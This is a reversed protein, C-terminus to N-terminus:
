GVKVQRVEINEAVLNVANLNNTSEIVNGNDVHVSDKLSQQINRDLSKLEGKLKRLELEKRWKSNVVEDYVPIDKSAKEAYKKHNDILFPIRELAKMFNTAALKPDKAIHGNNYTYKIGSEGEIFFRNEKFDFGHKMSAETKVLINLNYLSGVKLYEGKTNAKENIENLKAGIVKTNAGTVGNLQVPNLPLGAEDKQLRKQLVAWDKEMREAMQNHSGITEKIDELRYHASSKSRNFAQRESELATIQKELKAKELLDTNGSLIAVYESFNMGSKEDLSGEDITRKGLNNIKLQQIFLQKNHLLNFKYSDLSKEVAYIIVDVKNDACLKAIENGKRIARGERQELDSPRWPSDLHHIAVARKQANVGTGLMDTSGFLVRIRGENMAEIITKRAKETKAEQIFRIEHAPINHDSVLKRKIESYPSWEGPKYTGLDSFVFQTGKEVNHKKYYSHIQAACHSAKNDVHDSYHPSIMRMDLSMKRAYNTAILMKAKEERESLPPRGLVTADGNKAFAVLKQIFVEQQPTLPINHLIENKEPRDIGIDKATRYDTIENYFAALEPVKIFYRFREKQVIENTVSFEYDTTKKAYVAAWADFTKIQQRELEKPRLYKFLLFLETLSNSITTGSLFTAGLDKGNREQITRIAFLMNLARQSGQPNGMGAVRDHRTNFMLNKFRHSEDVFLHDIGMMKFDVVNDKKNEIDHTITKLKVELNQQRKLLGKLMARSVDGGQRKVMDLNEEVSELESQLIQQQVLPSQPIMGFQDHTLIIADWSNNKIDQFIKMRKAPTFDQKGPYLIKAYPYATRFTQAIEHINAKLGVIMPKNALKLRKMEYAACCMILTKGAGVEHDCIGGGNQKLMWIADKQSDYLNKIGLAKLDLKPFSQHSGDYKPRVYCNFTNNYLDRLKQKFEPKQENLWDTFGNRIEDIKSNALQIAESDRVKVEKDGVMIRKTINPTSNVLAHKMLAIGDYNRSQSKVAHKEYINANTFQAKVSFEDMSPSYHINVDTKFLDSAYEGYIRAPIWREGFNFDLEDFTIPQPIANQLAKLAEQSQTDNPHNQLYTEINQAKEIVNGTIFKDSVEYNQILPNYYVRGHLEDVLEESSKGDLLSLMYDTRVEGFKNLSATLAEEATEVHELKENQFSVPQTFIDAKVLEGNEGRELALVENAGSDMKLLGLNKLNNLNGYRRIFDDYYSNLLFRNTTDEKQRTAENNYLKHYADRIQIFTLAKAEQLPNQDLRKFITKGDSLEKLYGLQGNDEVFSGKAYHELIEGRFPREDPIRFNDPNPKAKRGNVKPPATFLNLQKGNRKKSKRRKTSKTQIREAQSLGFLDYLNQSPEHKNGQEKKSNSISVIKSKAEKGQFLEVNLIKSLDAELMKNLDAAMGQIGGNHVFIQAPKGYPNTDIFGETHVVRQFNNYYANNDIGSSLKESKVFDQEEDSLKNKTSDKQLIILDSGVETGAYEKFLNNPLRVASVLHTNQMLWNRIPENQPSNMVGQSTIFALLGGESLSDVGKLFFYNHINRTAQQRVKDSSKIFSIDFAAVDGFPINSSVVDFSNNFRSELEEFGQRRISDNPFIHSLLKGTLIDKEFATINPTQNQKKFASIFEGMGASPDLFSKPNAGSINLNGAITNVIEPPTYFATLISNKLSNVYQKYEQKSNTNSKLTEHLEAVLPFLEVESEPWHVIDSLDNAPNLVCKLAGFGLFQKLAEIEEENPKRNEKDLQFSLQIAKINARLHQEKNFSM